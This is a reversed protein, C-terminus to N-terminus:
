QVESREVRMTTGTQYYSIVDVTVDLENNTGGLVLKNIKIPRISRNFLDLVSKFGDYSTTFTVQLPMEVPAPVGGETLNQQAVDDIGEIDTIINPRILSEVTTVFAPYDYSSPLADLVLKANDGDALGIGSTQGGIMNPNSAVFTDYSKELETLANQNAELQDVAAEKKDAVRGLYSAQSWLTRSVIFGGVLVVSAFGIAVLAVTKDRDVQKRKTNIGLPKM